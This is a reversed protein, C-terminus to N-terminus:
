AGDTEEGETRHVVDSVASVSRLGAAAAIQSYSWGGEHAQRIRRDRTRRARRLLGAWVRVSELLLPDPDEVGRLAM